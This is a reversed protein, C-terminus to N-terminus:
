RAPWTSSTRRAAASARLGARRRGRLPRGRRGPPGPGPLEFTGPVRFVDIDADAVGHRVLADQAGHLLQETIFSNFRSVCLAFRGQPTTLLGEIVRAM